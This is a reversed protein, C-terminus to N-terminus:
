PMGITLDPVFDSAYRQTQPHIELCKIRSREGLNWGM